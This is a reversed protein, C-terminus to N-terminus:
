RGRGTEGVPEGTRVNVKKKGRPGLSRYFKAQGKGPGLQSPGHRSDYLSFRSM